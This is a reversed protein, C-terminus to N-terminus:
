SEDFQKEFERQIERLEKIAVRIDSSDIVNAEVREGVRSFQRRRERHEESLFDGVKFVQM